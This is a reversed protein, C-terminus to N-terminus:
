TYYSSDGYGYLAWLYQFEAKAATSYFQYACVDKGSEKMGFHIHTGSGHYLLQGLVEGQEIIQGFKLPIAARQINAYTENLAWSEFCVEFSYKWNYQFGVNTQWHGGADNFWTRISKVRLKCWAIVNVSANCGYDIGNHFDGGHDGYGWIIDVVDTNEIPIELVPPANTWVAPWFIVLAYVGVAAGIVIIPIFIGLLIKVKRSM